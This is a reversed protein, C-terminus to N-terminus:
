YLSKKLIILYQKKNLIIMIHIKLKVLGLSIQIEIQGTLERPRHQSIPHKSHINRLIM